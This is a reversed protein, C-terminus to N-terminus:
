SAHPWYLVRVVYVVSLQSLPMSSELPLPPFSTLKNFWKNLDFDKTYTRKLLHLDIYMTSQRTSIIQNKFELEIVSFSNTLKVQEQM